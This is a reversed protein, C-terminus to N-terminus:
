RHRRTPRLLDGNLWLSTAFFSVHALVLPVISPVAIFLIGHVTGMVTAGIAPFMGTRWGPTHFLQIAIFTCLSSALALESGLPAFVSIILGRFIAEEFGVYGIVIIAVVPRPFVALAKLYQQMWGGRAVTAWDTRPSGNLRDIFDVVQIGSLGILMALAIEGVGLIIALLILIPNADLSSLHLMPPRYIAFLAAFFVAQLIAALILRVAGDVHRAPYRQDLASIRMETRIANLVHVFFWGYYMLIVAILLIASGLTIAQTSV